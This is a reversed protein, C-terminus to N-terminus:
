SGCWKAHDHMILFSEHIITCSEDIIMCSWELNHQVYFKLSFLWMLSCAHDYMIMCSKKGRTGLNWMIKCSWTHSMFSWVHNMCSWVHVMFAWVHDNLIMNFMSNSHFRNILFCAHDYMVCIHDYMVRAHENMFWEHDYIFWAHEYM